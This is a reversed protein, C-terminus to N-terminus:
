TLTVTTTAWDKGNQTARVTYKGAKGFNHDTAGPAAVFDWAADHGFDWWVPGTAAPTTALSRTTGTTGTVTIATLAPLTPNQLPRAGIAAVPPAVSVEMLRLAATPSVAQFLQTAKSTADLEVAYPGKGWQNGERTTAGTITFTIEGNSISFGGLYGGEVRPLLIYGYNSGAGTTCAGDSPVGAWVELAFGRGSVPIKTDVELGVYQGLANQVLPQGTIIEFLDLDVNCFVLEMSYGTVSQVSPEFVCRDGAMNRVSIEDTETTNPTFEVSVVGDTTVHGAEGLVTRGCGDLRTVRSRRGKVLTLAKTTRAM